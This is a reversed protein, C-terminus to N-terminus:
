DFIIEIVVDPTSEEGIYDEYYKEFFYRNNGNEDKESYVVAIYLTETSQDDETIMRQDYSMPWKLYKRVLEVAQPHEEEKFQEWTKTEKEADTTRNLEKEIKKLEEDVTKRSVDYFYPRYITRFASYDTTGSTLKEWTGDKYIAIKDYNEHFLTDKLIGKEKIRIRKAKEM